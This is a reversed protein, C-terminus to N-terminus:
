APGRSPWRIPSRPSPSTSTASKSGIPGRGPASSSTTGMGCASRFSRVGKNLDTLDYLFYRTVPYNKKWTRFFASFACWENGADDTHFGWHYWWEVEVDGHVGEEQEPDYAWKPSPVTACGASALIALVLIGLARKM